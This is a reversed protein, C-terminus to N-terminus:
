IYIYIYIYKCNVEEATRGTSKKSTYSSAEGKVELDVENEEVPPTKKLCACSGM